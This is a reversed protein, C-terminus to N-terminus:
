KAPPRNVFKIGHIVVVRKWMYTYKVRRRNPPVLNKLIGLSHQELYLEQSLYHLTVSQNPLRRQRREM